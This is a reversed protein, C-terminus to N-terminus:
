ALLEMIILKHTYDTVIDRHENYVTGRHHDTSGFCTSLFQLYKIYYITHMQQFCMITIAFHVSLCLYFDMIKMLRSASPCCLCKSKEGLKCINWHNGKSRHHGLNSFRVPKQPWAFAGPHNRKEVSIGHRTKQTQPKQVTHSTFKSVVIKQM